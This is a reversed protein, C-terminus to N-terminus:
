AVIVRGDRVSVIHDTEVFEGISRRMRWPMTKWHYKLQRSLPAPRPVLQEWWGQEHATTVYGVLAETLAQVVDRLTDREVLLDLDICEGRYNDGAKYAYCRLIFEKQGTM